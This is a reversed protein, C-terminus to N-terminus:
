AVGGDELAALFGGVGEDGDGGDDGVGEVLGLDGLAGDLEDRGAVDDGLEEGEVLVDVEDDWSTAVLENPVDLIRGLNGDQAVSIPEARRIKGLRRIGIHSDLDNDIGLNRITRRTVSQFSQKHVAGREGCNKRRNGLTESFLTNSQSTISLRFLRKEAGVGTERRAYLIHLVSVVIRFEKRESEGDLRDARDVLGDKVDVSVSRVMSIGDEGRVLVLGLLEHGANVRSTDVPIGRSAEGITHAVAKAGFNTNAGVLNVRTAGNTELAQRNILILDPAFSLNRKIITLTLPLLLVLM